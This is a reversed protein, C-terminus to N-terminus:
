RDATGAEASKPHARRILTLLDTGAAVAIFAILCIAIRVRASRRIRVLPLVFPTAIVLFTLLYLGLLIILRRGDVKGLDNLNSLCEMPTLFYTECVACIMDVVITLFLLLSAVLRPVFLAVLGTFAYELCFWGDHFFGLFHKAYWFPINALFAYFVVFFLWHTGDARKWAATHAITAENTLTPMQVGMPQTAKIKIFLMKQVSPAHRLLDAM